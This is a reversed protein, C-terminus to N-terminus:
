MKDCVLIRKVRELEAVQLDREKEAASKEYMDLYDFDLNRLAQITKEIM